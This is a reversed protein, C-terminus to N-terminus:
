CDAPQRPAVASRKNNVAATLCGQTKKWGWGWKGNRDRHRGCLWRDGIADTEYLGDRSPGCSPLARRPDCTYFVLRGGNWCIANAPPSYAGASATTYESPQAVAGAATVGPVALAASSVVLALKLKGRKRVVSKSVHM